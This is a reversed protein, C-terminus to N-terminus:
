KIYKYSPVILTKENRLNYNGVGPYNESKSSQPRSRMSYSTNRFLSKYNPSYIAPGPSFNNRGDGNNITRMSMSFKPGGGITTNFNYQGPGPVTKISLSNRKETGM